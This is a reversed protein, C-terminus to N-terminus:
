ENEKGLCYDMYDEYYEELIWGDIIGKFLIKKKVIEIIELMENSDKIKLHKYVVQEIRAHTLLAILRHEILEDVIEDYEDSLFIQCKEMKSQMQEIWEDSVEGCDPCDVMDEESPECNLTNWIEEGLSGFKNSVDDQLKQRTENEIKAMGENIYDIVKLEEPTITL